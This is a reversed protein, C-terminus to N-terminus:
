WIQRCLYDGMAELLKPNENVAGLATNCRSCLLGRIRGAIHCHDVALRKAAKRGEGGNGGLRRYIACAGGQIAWLQEYLEISCGLRTIQRIWNRFITKARHKEYYEKQRAKREANTMAPGGTRSNIGPKFSTRNPRRPGIGAERSRKLQYKQNYERRAPTKNYQRSWEARATRNNRYYARNIEGQCIRCEPRRGGKEKKSKNFEDLPKTLECKSCRKADAHVISDDADAM